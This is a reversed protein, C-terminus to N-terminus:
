KSNVLCSIQKVKFTRDCTGDDNDAEEIKRVTGKIILEVDDGVALSPDNELCSFGIVLLKFENTDM